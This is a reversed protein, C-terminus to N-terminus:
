GQGKENLLELFRSYEETFTVKAHHQEQRKIYNRVQDIQSESVSTAFYEIAWSFHTSLLQSKNIWNASEGKLMQITKSLSMEANLGILVHVHDHYGNIFDVLIGKSKANERIHHFVTPRLQQNLLPAHNKTCWVAHIWVKVFSM